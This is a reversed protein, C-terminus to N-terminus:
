VCDDRWLCDVQGCTDASNTNYCANNGEEQQIARIIDVKKMNSVRIGREKRDTKRSRAENTKEKKRKASMTGKILSFSYCVQICNCYTWTREFLPSNIMDIPRKRLRNTVISNEPKDRIIMKGM